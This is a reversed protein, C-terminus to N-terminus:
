NIFRQKFCYLGSCFVMEFFLKFVLETQSHYNLVLAGFWFDLQNLEGHISVLKM